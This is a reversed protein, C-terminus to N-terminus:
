AGEWEDAEAWRTVSPSVWTTMRFRYGDATIRGIGFTAPMGWRRPTIFTWRRM